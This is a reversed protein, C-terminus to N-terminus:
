LNRLKLTQGLIRISEPRQSEFSKKLVSYGKAEVFPAYIVYISAGRKTPVKRRNLKVSGTFSSRISSLPSFTTRYIVNRKKVGTERRLTADFVFRIQSQGGAFIVTTWQGNSKRVPPVWSISYELAGTRNKFEHNRRAHRVINSAITNLAASIRPTVATKYIDMASRNKKRVFRNPM